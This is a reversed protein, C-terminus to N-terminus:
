PKLQQLDKSITNVIQGLSEGQLIHLHDSNVYLSSDNSSEIAKKGHFNNSLSDKILEKGSRKSVLMQVLRM